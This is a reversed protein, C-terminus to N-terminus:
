VKLVIRSHLHSQPLHLTLLVVASQSWIFHQPASLDRLFIKTSGNPPHREQSARKRQEASRLKTFVVALWCFGSSSQSQITFLAMYGTGSGEKVADRHAGTTLCLPENIVCVCAFSMRRLLSSSHKENCSVVTGEFLPLFFVTWDHLTKHHLITNTPAFCLRYHYHLLKFRNPRCIFYSFCFFWSLEFPFLSWLPHQTASPLQYRRVQRLSRVSIGYTLCIGLVNAASFVGKPWSLYHM